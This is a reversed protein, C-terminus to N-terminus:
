RPIGGDPRVADAPRAFPEFPPTLLDQPTTELAEALSELVSLRPNARGSEIRNLFPRGIGVMLCFTKKNIKARRRLRAVNAGLVCSRWSGPPEHKEPTHSPAANMSYAYAQEGGPAYGRPYTETCNRCILSPDQGFGAAAPTPEGAGAEGRERLFGRACRLPSGSM